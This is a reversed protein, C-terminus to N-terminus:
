IRTLEFKDFKWQRMTISVDKNLRNNEQFDSIDIDDELVTAEFTNDVHWKYARFLQGARKMEIDFEKPLDETPLKTVEYGDASIKRYYAGAQQLMEVVEVGEDIHAIAYVEQEMRKGDTHLFLEYIITSDKHICLKFERAM